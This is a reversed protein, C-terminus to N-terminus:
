RLNVLTSMVQDQTKITQANAQYARQATMMNVLEATLEVNSEELAGSQLLGLNGQGPTNVIPTGSLSSQTWANGGLPQLGQPNRFTALAIKGAVKTQGNSYRTTLVGDSDINVSTMAGPANGNVSLNTVGFEAGYQTVTSFNATFPPIPESVGGSTLTVSPIQPLTIVGNTVSATSALAGTGATWTYADISKGNALTPTGGTSPYNITAIPRMATTTEGSVGTISKGNATAYVNWTDAGVKQFYYTLTVPQGKVDYMTASTANNYSTPDATNLREQAAPVATTPTGAVGATATFGVSLANADPATIAVASLSGARTIVLKGNGDVAASYNAGLASAQMTTTLQSALTSLSGGADQNLPIATGDVTISANNAPISFNLNGLATTSITAPTSTGPILPTVAPMGKPRGVRSDTNLEISMVTTTVPAIGSTPLQIATALGPIVTGTADASYGQLKLNANNVIFGNADVKFQGNRSYVASNRGDALEFFGGGNIALDLPNGTATINGQTFQQAVVGPNVGMGVNVSGSISTAYMDQFEVRASKSGVTNANAINNGIVDLNRSAANLGSLAQQFGM